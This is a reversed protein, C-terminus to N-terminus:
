ALLFGTAVYTQEKAWKLTAPSFGATSFLLPRKREARGIGYIRQVERLGVPKDHHKVQAIARRAVVDVGGDAGAKTLSAGMYGHKKMWECVV